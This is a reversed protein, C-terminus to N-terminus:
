AMPLLISAALSKRPLRLPNKIASAANSYRLFSTVTNTDHVDHCTACEMQDAAAGFFVLPTSVPSNSLATARAYIGADAAASTDYNFGIPHDNSLDSGRLAVGTMRTVDTPTNGFSDLAVTGDHCSMCLLSVGTPVGATHEMTDSDYATFAQVSATRDWLPSVNNSLNLASAHPTHCAACMTNTGLDVTGGGVFDHASNAIAAGASGSVLLSAVALTGWIGSKRLLMKPSRTNTRFLFDDIGIFFEM